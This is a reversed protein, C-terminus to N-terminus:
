KIRELSMVIRSGDVNEFEMKVFGMAENFYLTTKTNRFRNEGEAEIVWVQLAGLPTELKIQDQVTFTTYVNVPNEFELKALEAWEVPITQSSNWTKGVSLPFEVEPYPSFQLLAFGSNRPPNLAIATSDEVLGTRETEPVIIGKGNFYEYVIMTQQDAQTSNGTNNFVKLRISDIPYESVLVDELPVKERKWDVPNYKNFNYTTIIKEEVGLSDFVQYSYTFIRGGKFIINDDVNPNHPGEDLGFAPYDYTYFDPSQVCSAIALTLFGLIYITAKNM